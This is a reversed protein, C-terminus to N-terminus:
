LYLYLVFKENILSLISASFALCYAATSLLCSVLNPVSNLYSIEGEGSVRCQFRASQGESVSTNRIPTIVVPPSLPAGTDPSVVEPVSSYFAYCLM